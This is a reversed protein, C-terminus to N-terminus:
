ATFFKFVALAPLVNTDLGHLCRHVMELGLVKELAIEGCPADIVAAIRGAGNGTIVFRDQAAVVFGRALGTERNVANRVIKNGNRQSCVQPAAFGGDADALGAWVAADDVVAACVRGVQGSERNCCAAGRQFATKFAATKNRVVGAALDVAARKVAFRRNQTICIIRDFKEKHM